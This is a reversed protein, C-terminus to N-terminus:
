TCSTCLLRLQAHMHEKMAGSAATSTMCCVQLCYRVLLADIEAQGMSKQGGRKGVYEKFATASAFEQVAAQMCACTVKVRRRGTCDHCKLEHIKCPEASHMQVHIASCVAMLASYYVKSPLQQPIGAICM